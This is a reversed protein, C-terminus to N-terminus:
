RDIRTVQGTTVNLDYVLMKRYTFLSNDNTIIVRLIDNEQLDFFKELHAPDTMPNTYITEKLFGNRLLQVSFLHQKFDLNTIPFGAAHLTISPVIEGHTLYTQAVSIVHEIPTAQHLAPLPHDDIKERLLSVWESTELAQKQYFGVYLATVKGNAMIPSGCMGTLEEKATNRLLLRRPGTFLVEENLLVLPANRAFGAVSVTELLSPNQLAPELPQLFSIAEQPIEFVAVDTGNKNSSLWSKIPLKTFKKEETQFFMYPMQSINKMVHGATVGLIHDDIKLAFASATKDTSEKGIQVRFTIPKPLAPISYTKPLPPTKIPQFLTKLRQYFIVNTQRATVTAPSIIKKSLARQLAPLPVKQAHLPLLCVIQLILIFFFAFLKM